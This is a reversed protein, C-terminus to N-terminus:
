DDDDAWDDDSVTEFEVDLDSFYDPNDIPAKEAAAKQRRGTSHVVPEGRRAKFGRRAKAYASKLETVVGTEDEHLDRLKSEVIARNYPLIENRALNFLYVTEPDGTDLRQDAIVPTSKAGAELYGCWMLTKAM